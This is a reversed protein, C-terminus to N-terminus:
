VEALSIEGPHVIKEKAIIIQFYKKDCGGM